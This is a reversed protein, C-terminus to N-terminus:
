LYFKKFLLCYKWLLFIKAKAQAQDKLSKKQITNQSSNLSRFNFMPTMLYQKNSWLGIYMRTRPRGEAKFSKKNLYIFFLFNIFDIKFLLPEGNSPMCLTFTQFNWCVKSVRMACFFHLFWLPFCFIISIKCNPLLKRDGCTVDSMYLKM